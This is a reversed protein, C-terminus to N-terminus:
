DLAAPDTALRECSRGWQQVELKGCRGGELRRAEMHAARIGAAQAEVWPALSLSSSSIADEEPTPQDPFRPDYGTM